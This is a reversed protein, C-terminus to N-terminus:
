RIYVYMCIHLNIHINVYKYITYLTKTIQRVVIEPFANWKNSFLHKYSKIPFETTRQSNQMPFFFVSLKTKSRLMTSLCAVVNPFLSSESILITEISCVIICNLYSSGTRVHITVIPSSQVIYSIFLGHWVKENSNKKVMPRSLKWFDGYSVIRKSNTLM